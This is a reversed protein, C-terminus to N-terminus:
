MYFKLIWQELIDSFRLFIHLILKLLYTLIEYMNIEVSTTKINIYITNIISYNLYLM